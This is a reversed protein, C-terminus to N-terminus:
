QAADLCTKADPKHAAGGHFWADCQECCVMLRDPNEPQKCVCFTPTNRVESEKPVRSKMDYSFRNYHLADSRAKNRSSTAMRKYTDLDVVEVRQMISEIPNLDTSPLCCLCSTHEPLCFEIASPRCRPLSTGTLTSRFLEQQGHWAKRGGDLDEPRFYWGGKVHLLGKKDFQIGQIEAM